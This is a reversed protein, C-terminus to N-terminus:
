TQVIHDSFINAVISMSLIGHGTNWQGSRLHIDDPEM